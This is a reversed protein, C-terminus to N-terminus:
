TWLLHTQNKQRGSLSRQGYTCLPCCESQCPLHGLAVGGTNGLPIMLFSYECFFRNKVIIQLNTISYCYSIDCANASNTRRGPSSISLTIFRQLQRCLSPNQLSQHIPPPRQAPEKFKFSQPFESPFHGGEERVFTVGEESQFHDGPRSLPVM